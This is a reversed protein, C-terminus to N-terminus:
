TTNRWLKLILSRQKSYWDRYALEECHARWTLSLAMLQVRWLFHETHKFVEEKRRLGELMTLDSAEEQFSM